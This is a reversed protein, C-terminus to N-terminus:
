VYCNVVGHGPELRSREFQLVVCVMLRSRREKNAWTKVLRRRLRVQGGTIPPWTQRRRLSTKVFFIELKLNSSQFWHVHRVKRTTQQSPLKYKCVLIIFLVLNLNIYSNGKINNDTCYNNCQFGSKKFGGNRLFRSWKKVLLWKGQIQKM